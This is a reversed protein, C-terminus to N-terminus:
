VGNWENLTKTISNLGRVFNKNQSNFVSSSFILVFQDRWFRSVCLVIIELFDMLVGVLFSVRQFKCYPYSKYRNVQLLIWFYIWFVRQFYFLSSIENFAEWTFSASGPVTQLTSIWCIYIFMTEHISYNLLFTAWGNSWLLASVNKASEHLISAYCRRVSLFERIRAIQLYPSTPLCLCQKVALWHTPYLNFSTFSSPPLQTYYVIVRVGLYRTLRTNQGSIYFYGSQPKQFALIAITRCTFHLTHKLGFTDGESPCVNDYQISTPKDM